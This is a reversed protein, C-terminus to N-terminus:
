NACFLTIKNFHQLYSLSIILQHKVYTNSVPLIDDLQQKLILNMCLLVSGCKDLIDVTQIHKDALM